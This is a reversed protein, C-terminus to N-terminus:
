HFLHPIIFLLIFSLGMIIFKIISFFCIKFCAKVEEITLRYFWMKVRYQFSRRRKYDQYRM